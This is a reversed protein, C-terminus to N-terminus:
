LKKRTAKLMKDSLGFMIRKAGVHILQAHSYRGEEVKFKNGDVSIVWNGTDTQWRNQVKHCIVKYFKTPKWTVLEGAADIFKTAKSAVVEQLTNIRRNMPYISYPLTRRYLELRRASYETDDSTLDIVYKNRHTHIIRYEGEWDASIYARLAYIPFKIM